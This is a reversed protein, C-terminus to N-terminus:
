VAARCADLVGVAFDAEILHLANVSGMLSM